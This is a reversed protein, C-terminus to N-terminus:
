KKAVVKTVVIEPDYDQIGNEDCMLKFERNLDRQVQFVDEEFCKATFMLEMSNHDTNSVGKYVIEETIAPIKQKILPLNQKVVREVKALDNSLAIGVYCTALSQKKTKNIINRIDSNAVIKVDGAIDEIETTRIGINRVTGRWGDIVVIDGVVFEGELIIFIGALVDTILSQAALGVVLAIIGVSAFLKGSDLGWSALIWLIAAIIVVWKLLSAFLKVLTKAKDTMGFCLLSLLQIILNVVVALMIIEFTLIVNPIAHYLANIIGNDSIDGAFADNIAATNLYAVVALAVLVALFTYYIIAKIVGHKTKRGSM